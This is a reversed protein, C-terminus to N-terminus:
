KMSYLVDTLLGRLKEFTIRRRLDDITGYRSERVETLADRKATPDRVTLKSADVFEIHTGWDVEAMPFMAELLRGSLVGLRGPHSVHVVCKGAAIDRLDM